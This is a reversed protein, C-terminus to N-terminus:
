NLYDSIGPFTDFKTSPLSSILPFDAVQHLYWGAPLLQDDAIQEAIAIFGNLIGNYPLDNIMSAITLIAGAVFHGTVGAPAPVFVPVHPPLISGESWAVARALLGESKTWPLNDAKEAAIKRLSESPNIAWRLCTRVSDAATSGQGFAPGAEGCVLAWYVAQRLPLVQAIVEVLEAPNDALFEKLTQWNIPDTASLLAKTTDSTRAHVLGQSVRLLEDLKPHSYSQGAM